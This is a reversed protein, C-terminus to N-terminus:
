GAVSMIEKMVFPDDAADRADSICRVAIADAPVAALLKLGNRDSVSSSVTENDQFGSYLFKVAAGIGVVMVALVSLLLLITKRNM